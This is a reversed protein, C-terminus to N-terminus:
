QQESQSWDRILNKQEESLRSDPHILRYMLLPMEGAEVMKWIHNTASFRDRAPMSGWESFNLESRAESVDHALLWSVPAIYGYWPWVTENSHCDYCATRLVGKVNAPAQIDSRVPPNTREVPWLQIVVIFVIVLIGTWKKNKRVTHV